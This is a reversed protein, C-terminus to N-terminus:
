QKRRRNIDSSRVRVVEWGSNDKNKRLLEFYISLSVITFLVVVILEVLM